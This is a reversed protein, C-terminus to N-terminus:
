ILGIINTNHSIILYWTVGIYPYSEVRCHLLLNCGKHVIIDSLEKTFFPPMYRELGNDVILTFYEKIVGHENFAEVCYRGSHETIVDDLNVHQFDGENYM